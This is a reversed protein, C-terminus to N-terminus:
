IERCLFIEHFHLLTCGLPPGWIPIQLPTWFELHGPFILFIYIPHGWGWLGSSTSLVCPAPGNLTTKFLLLQAALRQCPWKVYRYGKVPKMSINLLQPWAKLWHSPLSKWELHLQSAVGRTVAGTLSSPSSQNWAMPGRWSPSVIVAWYLQFFIPISAPTVSQLLLWLHPQLPLSISPNLGLHPLWVQSLVVCSQRLPSGTAAVCTITGPAQIM